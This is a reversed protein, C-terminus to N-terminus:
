RAGPEVTRVSVRTGTLSTAKAELELIGAKGPVGRVIVLCLGNFARRQHSPFPTLDSPDGNDTAIIEGPGAIQFDLSNNARPATRGAADTVRVTIFALDHGDARIVARDSSAGLRAAAGTTT